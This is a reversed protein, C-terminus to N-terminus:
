EGIRDAGHLRGSLIYTAEFRPRGQGCKIECGTSFGIKRQNRWPQSIFDPRSALSCCKHLCGSFVAAHWLQSYNVKPNGNHISISHWKLTCCYPFKWFIGSGMSTLQLCGHTSARFYQRKVGSFQFNFRYLAKYSLPSFRTTILCPSSCPSFSPQNNHVGSTVDRENYM